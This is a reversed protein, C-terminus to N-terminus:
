LIAEVLKLARYADQLNASNNSPVGNFLSMFDLAQGLFGPKLDKNAGTFVDFEKIKQPFYRRLPFEDTPEVRELGKFLRFTEFPELQVREDGNDISLSFNLPANWAMSLDILCGDRSKLIAHRGFCANKNEFASNFEVTLDGFIYRLIDIGHVSNSRVNLFPDTQNKVISEPLCMHARVPYQSSTVFKRAELVTNYHRRNYGVIVHDPVSNEYCVLDSSNFAVPKEVLIPKGKAIANKLLSVLSDTSSALLIGDWSASNDILEEGSSWVKEIGNRKAFDEVTMSGQRSAVSCVDFGIARLSTIHFSSISSSGIVAIKPKSDM